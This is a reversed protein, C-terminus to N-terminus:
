TVPRKTGRWEFLSKEDAVCYAVAEEYARKKSSLWCFLVVFLVLIAACIYGFIKLIDEMTTTGDESSDDEAGSKPIVRAAGALVKGSQKFISGISRVFRIGHHSEPPRTTPQAFVVGENSSISHGLSIAFCTTILVLKM